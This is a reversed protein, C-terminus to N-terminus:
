LKKFFHVVGTTFGKQTANSNEIKHKRTSKMEERKLLQTPVVWTSGRTAWWASCGGNAHAFRWSWKRTKEVPGGKSKKFYNFFTSWDYVFLFMQFYIIWNKNKETWFYYSIIVFNRIHYSGLIIEKM